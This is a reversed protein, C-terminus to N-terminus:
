DLGVYELSAVLILSIPYLLLILWGDRMTQTSGKQVIFFVMLQVLFIVLTEATFKWALGQFYILCLFVGLCFTNNMCAAGELTQLSQTISSQSRKAALKYSSALESANSALPALVFSIYFAPIGTVKGIEALVDVMPDSFVLCLITGIGMQKFSLRLLALRQEDPGLDRFEEPIEDEEDDEEDNKDESPKDEDKKQYPLPERSTIMEAFFDLFEQFDLSGGHDRDAEEFHLKFADPTYNLGIVELLQRMVQPHLAKSGDGSRSTYKTFLPKLSETLEQPVDEGSVQSRQAPLADLYTIAVQKETTKVKSSVASKFKGTALYVQRHHDILALCGFNEVKDLPVPSPQAPLLPKLFSSPEEQLSALYQLYLYGFFFFLSLLAGCVAWIQESASESMIEALYHKGIHTTARQDDVFLAPIQIVFYTLSTIVMLKSNKTVGDLFEIGHSRAGETWRKSAAAKYGICNGVYDMDVLGGYVSLVWPLTLLMITSGALAGVGVAVNEQAIAVPGVGSFLV